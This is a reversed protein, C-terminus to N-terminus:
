VAINPIFPVPRAPDSLYEDFAGGEEAPPEFSLRGGSRFYLTTERANKPPWSDYRRWQATGTEFVYAEPLDFKSDDKLFHKLFPLEIKERYFESTKAYFNVNGLKDGSGRGWGGHLWPGMVLMNFIGP